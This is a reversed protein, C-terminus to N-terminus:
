DVHIGVLKLLELLVRLALETADAHRHAELVALDRDDGNEVIRRPLVGAELGAVLDHGDVARRDRLHLRLFNRHM